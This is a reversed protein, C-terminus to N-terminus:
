LFSKVNGIICQYAECSTWQEPVAGKGLESRAAKAEHSNWIRDLEYGSDRINGIKRDWMISPYVNGYSDLFLSVELSRSKMPSKGTKAYGVLNKLFVREISQIPNISRRRNKLLWELDQVVTNPEAKIDIGKNAYYNDSLQGLNVHFDNCTIDPIDRKVAEFTERLKGENFRSLTYGFVFDLNKYKKKLEKLGKFVEIAKEYNGEIGRIRDHLEKYGDLSVTIVVRPIGLNLIETLKRMMLEHNCLSNTPMTLIYLGKSSGHFAKAIEVIDSRLFVEGGTLEIWRFHPNKRAFETIEDLQLENQPHMQWINCTKCKSQCKYTIAFNLKYPRGLKVFNSKLATGFLGVLKGGESREGM